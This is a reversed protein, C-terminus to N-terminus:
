RGLSTVILSNGDKWVHKQVFFAHGDPMKKHILFAAM